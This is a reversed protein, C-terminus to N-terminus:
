SEDASVSGLSEKPLPSFLSELDEKTLALTSLGNENILADVIRSKKAKLSMIKQEISDETILRYVNVTKTQGIRHARDVAQSEVAPEVRPM